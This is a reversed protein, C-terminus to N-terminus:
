VSSDGPSTMWGYVIVMVITARGGVKVGFWDSLTGHLDSGPGDPHVVTM